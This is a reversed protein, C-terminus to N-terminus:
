APAIRSKTVHTRLPVGGANLYGGEERPPEFRGEVSLVYLANAGTRNVSWSGDPATYVMEVRQGPHVPVACVVDPVVYGLLFGVM